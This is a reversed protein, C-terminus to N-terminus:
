KRNFDMQILGIVSIECSVIGGVLIDNEEEWLNQALMLKSGISLFSRFNPIYKVWQIM